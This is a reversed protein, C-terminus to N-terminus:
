TMCTIYIPKEIYSFCKREIGLKTSYIFNSYIYHIKFLSNTLTNM